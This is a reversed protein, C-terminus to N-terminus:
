ISGNDPAVEVPEGPMKLLKQIREMQDADLPETKNINLGLTELRKSYGRDKGLTERLFEAEKQQIALIKASDETHKTVKRSIKEAELLFVETKVHDIFDRFGYKNLYYANDWTGAPLNIEQQIEKYEKGDLILSRIKNQTSQDMLSPSKNEEM